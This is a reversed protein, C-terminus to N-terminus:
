LIVDSGTQETNSTLLYITVLKTIAYVPVTGDFPPEWDLWSSEALCYKIGLTDM